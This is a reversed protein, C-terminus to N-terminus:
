VVVDVHGVNFRLKFPSTAAKERGSPDMQKNPDKIAVAVYNAGRSMLLHYCHQM